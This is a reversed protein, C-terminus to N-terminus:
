IAEIIAQDKSHRSRSAYLEEMKDLEAKLQVLALDTTHIEGKGLVFNWYDANRLARLGLELREDAVGDQKALEKLVEAVDLGEATIAFEYRMFGLSNLVTLVYIPDIVSGLPYGLPLDDGLYQEFLDLCIRQGLVFTEFENRTELAQAHQSFCALLVASHKALFDARGIKWDLTHINKETVFKELENGVGTLAKQLGRAAEQASPSATKSFNAIFAEPSLRTGNQYFVQHYLRTLVQKFPVPTREPYARASTSTGIHCEPLQGIILSNTVLRRSVTFRNM